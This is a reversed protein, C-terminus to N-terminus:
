IIALKASATLDLAIVWHGKLYKSLYNPKQLKSYRSKIVQNWIHLCLVRLSVYYETKVSKHGFTIHHYINFGWSVGKVLFIMEFLYGYSIIFHSGKPIITHLLYHPKEQILLVPKILNCVAIPVITSHNSALIGLGINMTFVM